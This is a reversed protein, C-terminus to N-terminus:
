DAAMLRSAVLMVGLSRTGLWNAREAMAEFPSASAHVGNDGTNPKSELGLTKYNDLIARRISGQPAASPDTAGLVKGRFDEWTLSDAPWSVTYWQIKEGPATYASRMSMYFGNM